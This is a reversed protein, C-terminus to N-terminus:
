PEAPNPNKYKTGDCVPNQNPPRYFITSTPNKDPEAWVRQM